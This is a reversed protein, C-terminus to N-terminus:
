ENLMTRVTSTLSLPAKGSPGTLQIPGQVSPRRQRPELVRRQYMSTNNDVVQATLRARVAEDEIATAKIRNQENLQAQIQEQQEQQARIQNTREILEQQLAAAGTMNQRQSSTDLRYPNYGSIDDPSSLISANPSFSASLPTIPPNQENIPAFIPVGNASGYELMKKSSFTNTIPTSFRESDYDYGPKPTYYASAPTSPTYYASAPTAPSKSSSPTRSGFAIRELRRQEEAPNYVDSNSSPTNPQTTDTFFSVQKSNRPLGGTVIGGSGFVIDFEKTNLSQGVPTLEISKEENRKSPTKLIRDPDIIETKSASSKTIIKDPDIIENKSPTFGLGPINTIFKNARAKLQASKLTEFIKAKTRLEQKQQIVKGVENRLQRRYRPDYDARNMNSNPDLFWPGFPIEVPQQIKPPRLPDEQKIKAPRPPIPPATNSGQTRMAPGPGVRRSITQPTQTEKKWNGQNFLAYQLATQSLNAAINSWESTVRAAPATFSPTFSTMAPPASPTFFPLNQGALAVNGQAGIQVKPELKAKKKARAKAKQQKEKIQKAELTVLAKEECPSLKEEKIKRKM